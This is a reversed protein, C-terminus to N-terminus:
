NDGTCDAIVGPNRPDDEKVKFIVKMLDSGIDAIKTFIGGAIRLVSAGLSEGIAFGLFCIGVIERPVFLLIIVMMVLELSILFLGVSMGARLPIDVVNWPNGRLSAFATRSNAYTNIRIGFWAVAFSGGMGLISFFLVYLLTAISKEQLALFYYSMIAAVFVFLLLMFKGQHLLYTRCTQYITESVKLMSDHARVKKIQAYLWLSIGLTVCIVLAGYFLFDWAQIAHGDIHFSGQHLDPIKIDAESAFLNATTLVTAFLLLVVRKIHNM